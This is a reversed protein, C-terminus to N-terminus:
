GGEFIAGVLGTEGRLAVSNGFEDSAAADSATLKAVEGWLDAGGQNREFIYASGSNSGNDDDGYAGVLATDGSLAVSIGFYDSAAGDSATLKAVQGWSDAGGQNREFLYASGNGDNYAGVLATDGSLSVSYGFRDFITGDSATLKAVQSWSDAGGQNREFIYASGQDTNAGIDDNWAGVLATDWSIAVAYGFEDLIAGDSATEKKQEVWSGARGTFLYASGSNMGGDDDWYAGNLITAGNVSVASGFLDAAGGDSATLKEVQGWTDAGGENREYIYVAGQTGDDDRAGIVAIDNHTSVSYGFKDTAAGDSATLKAVQGWTDAGGTNREFIYASGSDASNDDDKYAGVLATDGSLSVSYGFWDSAAGDSATLKQVQGWNDVGGTNREFIYAAGSDAAGADDAHAGVLITDGSISVSNGLFDDADADTPALEVVKGWNDVGGTNREFVYAGGSKASGNNHRMAGVVVTDVSIAVSAGFWDDMVGDDATLIKVEGWNDIGGTNREFIYAKGAGVSPGSQYAGVVITDNDIAVSRGFKDGAGADSATLIKVQGWSDAGGTNREFVYASGSAIGADDNDSAGVVATDGSVAVSNGFTDGAAADSATLKAEETTPFAMGPQPGLAADIAAQLGPTIQDAESAEALEASAPETDAGSIEDSGAALAPLSAIPGIILVFVLVIAGLFYVRRISPSNIASM